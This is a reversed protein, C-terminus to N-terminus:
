GRRAEQHAIREARRHVIMRFPRPVALLLHSVELVLHENWGDRDRVTQRLREIEAAANSYLSAISPIPVTQHAERLREVIDDGSV